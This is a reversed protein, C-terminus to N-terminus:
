CDGSDVLFYLLTLLPHFELSEVLVGASAGDGRGGAAGARPRALRFFLCSKLLVVARGLALPLLSLLPWGHIGPPAGTVLLPEGNVALGFGIWLALPSVFRM